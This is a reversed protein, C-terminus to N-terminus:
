ENKFLEWLNEVEFMEDFKRMLKFSPDQQGREILSYTVSHIGLKEAMEKSKLGLDVRYKKLYKRM